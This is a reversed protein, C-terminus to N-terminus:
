YDNKNEFLNLTFNFKECYTNWKNKNNVKSKLLGNNLTILAKAIWLLSIPKETGRAFTVPTNNIHKIEQFIAFYVLM